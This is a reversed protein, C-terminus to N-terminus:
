HEDRALQLSKKKQFKTLWNLVTFYPLKEKWIM